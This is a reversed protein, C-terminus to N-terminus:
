EAAALPPRQPGPRQGEAGWVQNPVAQYLTTRQRPERGADRIMAELETAGIEQGHMAGAARTISENMLVGGLDNCGAALCAVAGQPGMKVWSAQINVIEPNLALRAVAHMLV